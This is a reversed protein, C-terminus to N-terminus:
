AFLTALRAVAAESMARDISRDPNNFDHEGQAQVLLGDRRPVVM